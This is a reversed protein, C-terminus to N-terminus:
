RPIFVSGRPRSFGVGNGGSLKIESDTMSARFAALDLPLVGHLTCEQM